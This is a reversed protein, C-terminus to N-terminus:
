EKKVNYVGESITVIAISYKKEHSMSIKVSAPKNSKQLMKLRKYALGNFKLFPMGNSNSFVEIEFF